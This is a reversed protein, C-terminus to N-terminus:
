DPEEVPFVEGISGGDPLTTFVGKPLVFPSPLEPNEVLLALNPAPEGECSSPPLNYEFRYAM